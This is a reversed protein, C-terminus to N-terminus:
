SFKTVCESLNQGLLYGSM